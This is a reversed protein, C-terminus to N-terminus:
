LPRIRCVAAPCVGESERSGPRRTCQARPIYLSRDRRRVSLRQTSLVSRALPPPVPM